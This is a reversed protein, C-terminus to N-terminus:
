PTRLLPELGFDAVRVSDLSARGLPSAVRAWASDVAAFAATSDGAAGYQYAEYMYQQWLVSQGLELARRRVEEAESLRGQAALAWALLHQRTADAEYRALAARAYEESGVADAHEARILALQSWARPYEPSDDAAFRALTEAPGYQGDQILRAVIEAMLQYHTGLLNIAARYSRLGDSTRGQLVLADGLIWQSRGSHPYDGILRALMTPNDRWTPNRTLTRASAAVVMISLAIWAGRPRERSLRVVLWGTAAALGVSPLYLTREALLVGSLFLTNSIPSIAIMFWVVGFGATRATERESSM